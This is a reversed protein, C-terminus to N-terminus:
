PGIIVSDYLLTLLCVEPIESRAVFDFTAWRNRGIRRVGQLQCAGDEIVLPGFSALGGCKRHALPVHGAFGQLHCLGRGIQVLLRICKKTNSRVRQAIELERGTM